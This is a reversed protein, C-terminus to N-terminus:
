WVSIAIQFDDCIAQLPSLYGSKAIDGILRFIKDNPQPGTVRWYMDFHVNDTVECSCRCIDEWGEDCATDLLVDAYKDSTVVDVVESVSLSSADIGRITIVNCLQQITMDEAFSRCINKMSKSTYFM